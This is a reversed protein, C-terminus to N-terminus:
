EDDDDAGEDKLVFRDIIAVVDKVAKVDVDGPHRTVTIPPCGSRQYRHHSGSVRALVFGYRVLLSELDEFSVNKQNNRLKALLTERKAM